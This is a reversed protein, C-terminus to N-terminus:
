MFVFSANFYKKLNWVCKEFTKSVIYNCYNLTLNEPAVEPIHWSLDFIFSFKGGSALTFM